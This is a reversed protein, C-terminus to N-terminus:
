LAFLVITFAELDVGSLDESGSQPSSVVVVAWVTPPALLVWWRAVTLGLAVHVAILVVVTAPGSWGTDVITAVVAAFATIAAISTRASAVLDINRKEPADSCAVGILWHHQFSARCTM